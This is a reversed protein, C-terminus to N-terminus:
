QCDTTKGSFVISNDETNLEMCVPDGNKKADGLYSNVEQCLEEDMVIKRELQNVSYFNMGMIFGQCDLIIKQYKDTKIEYMYDFDTKVYDIVPMRAIMEAKASMAVSFGLLLILKRM